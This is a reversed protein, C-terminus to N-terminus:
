PVIAGPREGRFTGDANYEVLYELFGRSLNGIESWDYARPEKMAKVLMQIRLTGGMQAHAAAQAPASAGILGYATTAALGLATARTLFERRGIKGDAYEEAHMKAAPHIRPSHQKTM